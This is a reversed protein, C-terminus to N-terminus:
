EKFETSCKNDLVHMKPTLGASCLHEVLVLYAQIMEGALCNKMAEVLIVNSAIKLLVM